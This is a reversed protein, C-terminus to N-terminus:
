GMVAPKGTKGKEVIREGIVKAMGAALSGRGLHLKRKTKEGQNGGHM